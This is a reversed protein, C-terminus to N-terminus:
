RPQRSYGPVREFAMGGRRGLQALPERGLPAARREQEVAVALVALDDDLQGLIARPERDAAARAVVHREAPM